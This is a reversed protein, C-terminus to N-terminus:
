ALRMVGAASDRFGCGRYFDALHAECDVHLWQAGRERAAEAARKVLETAIGQRRFDPDRPFEALRDPIQGRVGRTRGRQGM